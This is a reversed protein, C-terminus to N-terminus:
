NKFFSDVRLGKVLLLENNNIAYLEKELGFLKLEEHKELNRIIAPSSLTEVPAQIGLTIMREQLLELENKLSQGAELFQTEHEVFHNLNSIDAFHGSPTEYIDLVAGEFSGKQWARNTNKKIPVILHNKSHQMDEFPNRCWEGIIRGITIFRKKNSDTYLDQFSAKAYGCANSIIILEDGNKPLDKPVAWNKNYPNGFLLEVSNIEGIFPKPASKPTKFTTCASLSLSITM